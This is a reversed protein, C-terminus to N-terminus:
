THRVSLKTIFDDAGRKLAEVQTDLDTKATLVVVPIHSTTTEQKIRRALELGDMEPKM